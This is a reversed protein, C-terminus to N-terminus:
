SNTARARQANANTPSKVSAPIASNVNTRTGPPRNGAHGEKLKKVGLGDKDAVARAVALGVSAFVGEGAPTEGVTKTMVEEGTPVGVMVDVGAGDMGM